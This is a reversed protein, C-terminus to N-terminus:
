EDFEDDGFMAEDLLEDFRDLVAEYEDESAINDILPTGDAEEAYRYFLLTDDDEPMAAGDEEYPSLVIYSQEKLDFITLIECTLKHGDDTDITVVIDTDNEDIPFIEENPNAMIAEKLSVTRFSNVEAFACDKEGYNRRFFEVYM